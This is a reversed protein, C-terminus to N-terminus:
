RKEVVFTWKQLQTGNSPVSDASEDGVFKGYGAARVWVALRCWASASGPATSPTVRTRASGGAVPRVSETHGETTM